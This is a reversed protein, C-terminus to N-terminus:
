YYDLPLQISGNWLVVGVGSMTESTRNIRQITGGEPFCEIFMTNYM